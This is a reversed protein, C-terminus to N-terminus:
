TTSKLFNIIDTNPTHSSTAEDNFFAGIVSAAPMVPSEPSIGSFLGELVIYADTGSVSVSLIKATKTYLQGDLGIYAVSMSAFTQLYDEITDKTYETSYTVSVITGNPNTQTGLIFVPPIYSAAANTVGDINQITTKPLLTQIEGNDDKYKFKGNYEAM